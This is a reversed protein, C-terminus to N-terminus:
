PISPAFEFGSGIADLCCAGAGRCGRAYKADDSRPYQNSQPIDMVMEWVSLSRIDSGGAELMLWAALGKFHFTFAM